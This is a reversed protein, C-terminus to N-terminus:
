ESMIEIYNNIYKKLKGKSKIKFIILQLLTIM